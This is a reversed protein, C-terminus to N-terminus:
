IRPEKLGSLESVRRAIRKYWSPLKLDEVRRDPTYPKLDLVPTGNYLDLLGVKLFRGRREILRVITLAIPNPRHTSRTAFVGRYENDLFPKVLMKMGRTGHFYYILIIHSFEELDKLGEVYEEFVEVEGEVDSFAPQIPVEEEAKLPSHIIGIPYIRIELKKFEELSLGGLFPSAKTRPTPNSGVCPKGVPAETGRRQGPEAVGAGEM